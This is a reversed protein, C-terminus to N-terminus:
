KKKLKGKLRLNKRINTASIKHIKKSLFIKKIKYGVKRGYCIDSINPALKIKYFGKYQKLSADIRAKVDHFPFPNDGIKHVNKVLILVQRNIKFIKKFLNLHGNHWPQFRGLMLSTQKKNDWRNNKKPTHEM